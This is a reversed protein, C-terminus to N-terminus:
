SSDAGKRAGAGAGGGGGGGTIIKEKQLMGETEEDWKDEGEPGFVNYPSVEPGEWKYEDEPGFVNYPSVAPEKNGGDENDKPYVYTNVLEWMEDELKKIHEEMVESWDIKKM